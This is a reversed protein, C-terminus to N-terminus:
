NKLQRISVRLVAGATGPPRVRDERLCRRRPRSSVALVDQRFAERAATLVTFVLIVLIIIASCAEAYYVLSAIPGALVIGSVKAPTLASLLRALILQVNQGSSYIIRDHGVIGSQTCFMSKQIRIQIFPLPPQHCRRISPKQPM